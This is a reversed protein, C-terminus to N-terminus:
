KLTANARQVFTDLSQKPTAQSTIAQQVSAFWFPRMQAFGKIHNYYPALYEAQLMQELYPYEAKGAYLDKLDTRVAFSGTALVSKKGWEPDQAMFAIFKKAAEVKAPDGNDFVCPGGILFELKPKGADSPYPVFVTEFNDKARPQNQVWNVNNYLISSAATGQVYMDITDAAALSEGGPGILGKKIAGVVWELGKVGAPNNITYETLGPNLMSSGYFNAIYARTGQDGASSKAFIMTPQVGPIKQKIATLLAEYEAVTWSRDPRDLPLMGLLGAKELMTKNFAMMFPATHIPYMYYKGDITVPDLMAKPINTTIESGMISNLDVLIGQGAWDMIRGPADYIVDPATKSVIASNIQAPGDTFNIKQLVVKIGPNKAEFAKILEDDFTESIVFNPFNWFNITVEGDKAMDTKSGCSIAFFVSMAMILVLKKM